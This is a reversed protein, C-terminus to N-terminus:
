PKPHRKIKGICRPCIKKHLGEVEITDYSEFELMSLPAKCICCSNWAYDQYDPGISGTAGMPGTAREPHSLATPGYSPYDVPFDKVPPKPAKPQKTEPKKEIRLLGLNALEWFM